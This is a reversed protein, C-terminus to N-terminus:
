VLAKKLHAKNVHPAAENTGEYSYTQVLMSLQIEGSHRYPGKLHKLSLIQVWQCDAFSYYGWLSTNGKLACFLILWAAEKKSRM